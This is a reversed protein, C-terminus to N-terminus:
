YGEYTLAQYIDVDVKHKHRKAHIAGIGQSNPSDISKWSCDQCNARVKRIGLFKKLKNTEKKM